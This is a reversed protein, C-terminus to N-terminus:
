DEEGLPFLTREEQSFLGLLAEKRESQFYYRYIIHDLKPLLCIHDYELMKVLGQDELFTMVRLIFSIRNNRGKKINKLRDDFPPIDEWIMAISKLNIGLEEEKEQVSEEDEALVAELYGSVKKELEQLPLFQRTAFSQDDSNYFRSLLCIIIFYALYLHDNSPLKMKERLEANKYGFFHNNMGPTLYITGDIEFIKVRAEVEMIEEMIERVEQRQFAYRDESRDTSGEKLLTMFLRFAEQIHERDYAM